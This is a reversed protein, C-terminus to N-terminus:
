SWKLQSLRFLKSLGEFTFEDMPFTDYLKAKLIMLVNISDKVQEALMGLENIM